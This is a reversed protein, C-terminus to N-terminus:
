GVDKGAGTCRKGQDDEHEAALWRRERSGWKQAGPRITVLRDCAPCIGLAM